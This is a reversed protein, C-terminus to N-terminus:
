AVPSTASPCICLIKKMCFTKIGKLWRHTPVRVIAILQDYTYMAIGKLWRLTPVRVSTKFEK